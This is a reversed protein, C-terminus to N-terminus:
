ILRGSLDGALKQLREVPMRGILMFSRRGRSWYVINFGQRQETRPSADPVDDMILCLAVPGSAPDLYALQGLPKHDYELLQARKFLLDPVSIRDLSLAVGMKTGVAAIEQERAAANDPISALTEATYLTLYEAVAQRWEEDESVSVSLDLLHPM